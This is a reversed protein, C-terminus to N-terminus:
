FSSEDGDKTMVAGCRYPIEEVDSWQNNLMFFM